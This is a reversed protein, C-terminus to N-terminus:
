SRNIYHVPNSGRWDTLIMGKLDPKERFNIEIRGCSLKEYSLIQGGIYAPSSKSECLVLDSKKEILSTLKEESIVWKSTTFVQHDKPSLSEGLESSRVVWSTRKSVLNKANRCLLALEVGM